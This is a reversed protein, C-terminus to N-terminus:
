EVEVPMAAEVADALPQHILAIGNLALRRAARAADEEGRDMEWQAHSALLAVEPARGLTLAFRRAGAEVEARGARV